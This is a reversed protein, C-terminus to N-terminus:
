PLERTNKILGIDNWDAIKLEPVGSQRSGYIEGPGRLSLDIEALEFGSRTEKLANLRIKTKESENETLLLCYSKKTGRGVRGRLQHLSALGFREAGEIVMITANPIDIGVEVVSTSVLVDIQGNKFQAIIEEKEQSKLKGHILGVKLDKFEHKLKEYEHSAAKVELLTEKDSVEILPCVIYAQVKEKKIQDHIWDFAGKRKTEAVIWTIIKGRGKPLEDLTSLELDGFFTLAVTRPIPTATMILIHPAISKKVLTNKQEVGFKHQEDIVILAVNKMDINLLAHTGVLIDFDGIDKKTATFIGIKLKKGFLKNLTQFHQEALIQTPSMLVSKKGSVFVGYMAIAAVITKGSGVDGELLRNMPINKELDEMIEKIVKIQSDTLQFDLNKIFNKIKLNDIKLKSEIRNNEWEKKRKINQNHLSLVENFALRQKAIEFKELSTPFHTDHIPTQYDLLNYKELTKAPLFEEFSDKFANWADFTKRRIWKSSIGATEAYIPILGGTHIQDVGDKMIEYEPAMIARKHGMFTLKGAFSVSLGKKFTNSLYIQNFWIADIKGTDDTITVIQMTKGTKTYTNVFSTITGHITAVEDIQLNAITTTKSFDLFRTPVYHFLDWVTIIGLKQLKKAYSPGVLPLEEVSIKQLDIM